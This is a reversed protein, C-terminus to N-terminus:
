ELMEPPMEISGFVRDVEEKISGWSGTPSFVAVSHVNGEILVLREKSYLINGTESEYKAEFNAQIEEIKLHNLIFLRTGFAGEVVKIIEMMELKRCLFNGQEVSLSLATCIDEISPPTKKQHELIRIAAVVLHAESYLDKATM